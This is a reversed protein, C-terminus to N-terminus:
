QQPELTGAASADLPCIISEHHANVVVEVAGNKLDYVPLVRREPPLLGGLRHACASNALCDERFANM